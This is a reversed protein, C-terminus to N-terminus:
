ERVDDATADLPRGLSHNALYARGAYAARHRSFLPAVLTRIREDDWPPAGLAAAADAIADRGADRPGAM